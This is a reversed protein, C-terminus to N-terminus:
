FGLVPDYRRPKVAVSTPAARTASAARGNAEDNRRVVSARPTPKAPSATEGAKAPLNAVRLVHPIM